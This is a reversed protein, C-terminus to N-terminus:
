ALKAVRRAHRGGEFATDLFADLCAEALAVPTKRGALVLVNANNHQRALTASEVDHCLAARAVRHRNIAISMGIGSGCILVGREVEGRELRMALAAAYDPYDVPEASEPGLDLPEMGRAKLAAKLAGKLALGAHDSAIAIRKPSM